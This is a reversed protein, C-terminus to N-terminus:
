LHPLQPGSSPSHRSSSSDSAPCVAAAGLECVGSPYREVTGGAKRVRKKKVPKFGRRNGERVKEVERLDNKYVEGFTYERCPM